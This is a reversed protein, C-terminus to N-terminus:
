QPSWQEGDEAESGSVAAPERERKRSQRQQQCRKKAFRQAEDLGSFGYAALQQGATASARTPATLHSLRGAALSPRPLHASPRKTGSQTRIATSVAALQQTLVEDEAPTLQGEALM